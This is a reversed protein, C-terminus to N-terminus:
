TEEFVFQAGHLGVFHPDFDPVEVLRCPFRNYLGKATASEPYLDIFTERDTGLYRAIALVTPLDAENIFRAQMVFRRAKAGKDAQHTGDYARDAKSFDKPSMSAGGFPPNYGFEFWTGLFLKTAQLYGDGNAPSGDAWRSIFSQLTTVATFYQVTNRYEAFDAETYVDIDTNLGATSFAALATTDVITGGTWDDTSYGLHRLTGATTFNHRAVAIGNAKQASGWALKIDQSALSTTRAVRARETPLQLHREPLTAVLAPSASIEATEAINRTLIRINPM